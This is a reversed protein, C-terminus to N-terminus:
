AILEAVARAYHAATREQLEHRGERVVWGGAIMVDRVLNESGSFVLANAIADGTRQAIDPHEGDLVVLDARKGSALAGMERGLAQAGGAAAELWLTTGVAASTSSINLNRRRGVLRQVYELLRLEEAPDRSVHSDGGIGWRGSAGRYGLLAFIGDGLDAETTPCLGAVAGSAALATLEGLQMHTAHVLCWRGDIACNELLWEVPRKHLALTCEEVERTQEAAHIHIPTREDVGGVLERLSQPDVARLSHPAIGVNIDPTRERQLGSVRDLVSRVDSAFRRQRPELPKAGFGAWRYLSPLLTIAIGTERAAALHRDLMEAPHHVYHFEAVATYGHRLMEIYLQAAIAQAQEPTLREMFQYMLERWSWFDDHPAARVDTLGAMARQFAHSHVNAMGPLVPGHLRETGDVSSAVDVATIDGREVTIRVDRAWGTPLLADRAYYQKV